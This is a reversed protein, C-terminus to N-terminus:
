GGGVTFHSSHYLKSHLSCLALRFEDDPTGATMERLNEAEQEAFNGCFVQQESFQADPPHWLLSVGSCLAFRM